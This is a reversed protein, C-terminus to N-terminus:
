QGTAKRQQELLTAHERKLERREKMDHASSSEGIEVLRRNISQIRGNVAVMNVPAAPNTASSVPVNRQGYYDPFKEGFLTSPRLFRGMRENHRWLACQRTLMARVGEVDGKVAHLRAAITQITNTDAEYDTGAETNLHALLSRADVVRQEKPHIDKM